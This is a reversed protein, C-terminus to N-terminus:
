PRDPPASIMGGHHRVIHGEIELELLAAGIQAPDHHNQSHAVDRTIQDQAAPTPGLRSLIQAHLDQTTPKPTSATSVRTHSTASNTLTLSNQASTTQPQAATQQAGLVELVDAANRILTAGDRLLINCGSARADFPHGPVALVDRGQDAANRATILSGSKAAAEVVIVAQALGSIIRNRRPFHRATPGLGMPMESLRLGRMAIDHHLQANETPHIYDVGGAQVAITQGGSQCSGADLASQQAATDIGRALRSVITIGAEVLEGAIKSALRVGLSSANRSGVMAICPTQLADLNGVAWLVPPADAIAKLHAPYAAEAVTLLTAGARKVAAIEALVVQKPCAVYGRVGAAGAIDPLADLATQADGHEGMLRYFTAIGVRRSRLLRLWAIRHEETTPPLLPHTSSPTDENM